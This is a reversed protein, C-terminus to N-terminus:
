SRLLKCDRPIPRKKVMCVVFSSDVPRVYHRDGQRYVVELGDFAVTRGAHQPRIGILIETGIDKGPALRYGAIPHTYGKFRHDPYEVSVGVTILRDEGAVRVGLVHIGPGSRKLRVGELVLPSKTPNSVILDGYTFRNGLKQPISIDAGGAILPGAEDDKSGCGTGFVVVALLGVSLTRGLARADM